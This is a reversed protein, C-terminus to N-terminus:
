ARGMMKLCIWVALALLCFALLLMAGDQAPVEPLEPPLPM